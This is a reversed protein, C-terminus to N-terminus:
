QEMKSLTFWFFSGCDIPGSGLHDLKFTLAHDAQTGDSRHIRSGTPPLQTVAIIPSMSISVSRMSSVALFQKTLDAARMWM